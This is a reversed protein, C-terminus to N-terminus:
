FIIEWLAYWVAALVIGTGIARWHDEFIWNTINGVKKGGLVGLASLELVAWIVVTVIWYTARDSGRLTTYLGFFNATGVMFFLMPFSFITNMRSALAATRGAAAAAPDAEGGAQVNRANAIVKKQAPWIVLWVNLFMTVALLIGTYISTGEASKAYTNSFLQANGKVDVEALLILIGTLLTAAAGWRFWWLARSALKDIANTRAAPEMEAFAPTQVFNFYYLIGIWLIGVVVHAWRALFQLGPNRNFIDVALLHIV